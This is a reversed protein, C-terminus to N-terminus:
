KCIAELIAESITGPAIYQEEQEYSKLNETQIKGNRYYNTYSVLVTTREICNYRTFHNSYRERVTADRSHDFRVWVTVEQGSRRLTDADYYVVTGKSNEDAYVWNAADAHSIPMLALCMIGILKATGMSKKM